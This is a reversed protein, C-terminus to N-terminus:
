NIWVFYDVSGNKSSFILVERDSLQLLHGTEASKLDGRLALSMDSTRFM